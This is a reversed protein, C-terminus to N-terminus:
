FQRAKRRNEEPQSATGTEPITMEVTVFEIGFEM